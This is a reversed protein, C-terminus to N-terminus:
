VKPEGLAVTINEWSDGTAIVCAQGTPNTIIITWSGTKESALVELVTGNSALGMSVPAEEYKASLHDLFKTRDNCMPNAAAAGCVLVGALVGVAISKSFM